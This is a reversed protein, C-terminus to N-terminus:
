FGPEMYYYVTTGMVIFTYLTHKGSITPGNNTSLFTFSAGSPSLGTFSSTGSSTGQVALTYTGGDKMGQLNFATPSASTYALNSNGFLIATASGSNFAATNTASGNVELKSVPAKTGIGVNGSNTLRFGEMTTGGTTAYNFALGVGTASGPRVVEIGGFTNYWGLKIGGVQTDVGTPAKGYVEFWVPEGSGNNLTNPQISANGIVSLKYGPSTTGIGVNGNAHWSMVDSLTTEDGGNNLGLDLRTQATGGTGYSGLSFQAVHGFKVGEQRIRSLRLVQASANISATALTPNQVHLTSLPNNIGVGISGSRWIAATKNGGADNTTGALNWATSAPATYTVYSTGNYTWLSNDVSSQYVVSQDSPTDPTFVVGATTPTATSFTVINQTGPVNTLIVDGNSDVGLVKSSSTNATSSSTLNTFRLGSNGATGQNIELKNAPANTGIGLNGLRYIANTKDTGADTTGGSLSFNSGVTIEKGNKDVVANQAFLEITFLCFLGIFFATRFFYKKHIHYKM